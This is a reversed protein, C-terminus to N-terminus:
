MQFGELGQSHLRERKAKALGTQGDVDFLRDVVDIDFGGPVATGVSREVNLHEVLEVYGGVRLHVDEFVVIKSDFVEADVVDLTVYVLM